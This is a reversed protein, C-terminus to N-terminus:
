RSEKPELSGIIKDLIPVVVAWSKNQNSMHHNWHWWFYKQAIGPNRHIINHVLIFAIGYLSAAIYFYPAFFIIPIHAALILPIGIIENNSIKKDIFENRKAILHHERLHFAFISNRKRGLGHFLYRHVIYEIVNAYLVGLVFTIISIV